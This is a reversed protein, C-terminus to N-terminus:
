GGVKRAASEMQPAAALMAAVLIGDAEDAQERLTPMKTNLLAEYRGVKAVLGELRAKRTQLARGGVKNLDNLLSECEGSFEEALGDLLMEMAGRSSVVPMAYVRHGTCSRIAREIKLFTEVHAPPVYYDGGSDRLTVADVYPMVRGALWSSAATRGISVLNEDYLTGLRAAHAHDPPDFRLLGGAVIKVRLKIEHDLDDGHASENVVALGKKGELPRVLRRTATMDRMALRLAAQPSPLDPRLHADTIGEATLARDLAVPDMAGRLRWSVRLGCGEVTETLGVLSHENMSLIDTANM